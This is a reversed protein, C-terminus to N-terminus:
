NSITAHTLPEPLRLAPPLVPSHIARAASILAEQTMSLTQEKAGEVPPPLVRLFLEVHSFPVPLHARDWSGFRLGLGGSTAALAVHANAASAIQLFGKKARCCPGLPGDVAIVGIDGSEVRRIFERAGTVSRAGNTGFVHDIGLHRLASALLRGDLSPSLMVVLGRGHAAPMPAFALLHLLMGHFTALVVRPAAMMQQFAAPKPGSVRWTRALVRFVPM